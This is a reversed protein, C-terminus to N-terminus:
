LPPVISLLREEPLHPVLVALTRMHWRADWTAQTFVEVLREAPRPPVLAESMEICKEESLYPVLAEMAEMQKEGYPLAQVMTLAEALREPMLHPLLAKLIQMQTVMDEM